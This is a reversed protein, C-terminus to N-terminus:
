RRVPPKGFLIRLWTRLQWWPPRSGVVFGERWHVQYEEWVKDWDARLAGHQARRAARERELTQETEYRAKWMAHQPHDPLPTGLLAM